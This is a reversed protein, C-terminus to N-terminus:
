QVTATVIGYGSATMSTSDAFAFQDGDGGQYALARNRDQPALHVDAAGAGSFVVAYRTRGGDLYRYACDVLADASLNAGWVYGGRFAYGNGADILYGSSKLVVVEYAKGSGTYPEYRGAYQSADIPRSPVIGFTPDLWMAVDGYQGRMCIWHVDPYKSYPGANLSATCAVRGQQQGGVFHVSDQFGKANIQLGYHTKVRVAELARNRYGIECAGATIRLVYTEELVERTTNNAQIRNTLAVMLERANGSTTSAIDMACGDAQFRISVVRATPDGGTLQNNSGHSGGTFYGSRSAQTPDPNSVAEVVYPGLWDTGAWTTQVWARDTLSPPKGGHPAVFVDCFNYLGSGGAPGFTLKIDHTESLRMSYALVGKSLSYALPLNEASGGAASTPPAIYCSPDIIHTYGKRISNNLAVSTGLTGAFASPDYTVVFSISPDRPSCFIRTVLTDSVPGVAGSSIDTAAIDNLDVVKRMSSASDTAFTAGDYESFLMQYNPAGFATTGNGYWELRYIKGAKAGNVKVELLGSAMLADCQTSVGDRTAARLPFDVGKNIHLADAAGSAGSGPVYCSPDIIHSWGGQGATNLVVSAGPKFASTDLTVLFAISTDLKGRFLRTVIGGSSVGGISGAAVDTAAIDNLDIIKRMGAASNTAYAAAEYEGFLMQYNPAGWATTGNGYWELRYVKGSVAGFVRIDLVGAAIDPRAPQTVGDRTQQRLPYDVGRNEALYGVPAATPLVLYGSPDIVHTYGKRIPNNLAVATGQTAAFTSPDYTVVFVISPDRSSTFVRTVLTQQVDGVAGAEIGTAAIDNLDVIKRMGSASNTAYTAADYENFLMQYNPAGWATTGNGYWELRYLKGHKAGIVSVGLLGNVLLDDCAMSVGDRVCARLPMDQGKNARLSDPWVAPVNFTMVKNIANAMSPVAGGETQVVENVRGHVVRHLLDCDTSLVGVKQITSLTM